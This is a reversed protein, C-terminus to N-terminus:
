EMKKKSVDVVQSIYEIDKNVYGQMESKVKALKRNAPLLLNKFVGAEFKIKEM